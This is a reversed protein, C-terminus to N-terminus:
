NEPKDTKRRVNYVAKGEAVLEEKDKLYAVMSTVVIRNGSRAIKGEAIIDAGIAPRLYDVRMDITSIKDEPSVLTTMAAAGGASDMLTAIMGGHMAMARPDGVLDDKYPLLLKAFGPGIDLLQIGLYRHLPVLNEIVNKFFDKDARM